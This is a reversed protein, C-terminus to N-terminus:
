SGDLSGADECAREPMFHIVQIAGQKEIMEAAHSTVHHNTPDALEPSGAFPLFRKRRSGLTRRGPM